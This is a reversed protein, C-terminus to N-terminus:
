SALLEAAVKRDDFDMVTNGTTQTSEHGKGAILVIDGKRACALAQRIADRRDVAVFREARAPVMGALVEAIIREPDESRPNDSTLVAIDALENVVRGMPARKGRDRDGGCGFVVILRGGSAAHDTGRTGTGSARDSPTSRTSKHPNAFPTDLPQQARNALSERLARCVNALADETHAYDVYVLRGGRPDFVRELRGPAPSVTALGAVIAAPSAGSLLACASACLANEINFRGTLPVRVECRSIGMGHLVLRTGSDDTVLSSAHLDGQSGASNSTVRYRVVQAGREEALTALRALAPDAANLIAFAGPELSEFLRAKARFYSEMDGHYDLHDRTLNTFQAAQVKLGALREQDLAHSSAEMAIAQGGLEVHRALIRALETADPTTHTAPELRGDALRNGATGLVGSRLGGAALLQATLHATTTKGNTGTVAAVFLRRAPEGLVRHAAEGTARRAQPHLWAPVGPLGAALQADATLVASAGRRLAEDVYRRGDDRTGALASFLDGPGVRRSDLQVGTIQPGDDRVSSLSGGLIRALETLRM